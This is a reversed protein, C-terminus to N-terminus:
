SVLEIRTGVVRYTWGDYARRCVMGVPWGGERLTVRFDYGGFVNHLFLGSPDELITYNYRRRQREKARERFEEDEAYKVKLRAVRNQNDCVKCILRKYRKYGNNHSYSQYIQAGCIKCRRDEKAPFPRGATM